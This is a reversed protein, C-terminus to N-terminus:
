YPSWHDGHRLRNLRRARRAEQRPRFHCWCRGCWPGEQRVRLVLRRRAVQVPLFRRRQRRPGHGRQLGGGGTAHGQRVPPGVARADAAEGPASLRPQQRAGIVAKLLDAQAANRAQEM